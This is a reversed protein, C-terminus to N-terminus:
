WATRPQPQPDATTRRGHGEASTKAAHCPRCAAQLSLHHPDNALGYTHDAQSARGTCHPGRIECQWRARNLCALRARKYEPTDYAPNHGQWPM